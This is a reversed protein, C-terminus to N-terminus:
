INKVVKPTNLLLNKYERLTKIVTKLCKTLAHFCIQTKLIQMWAKPNEWILPIPNNYDKSKIKM